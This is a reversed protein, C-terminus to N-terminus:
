ADLVKRVKKALESPGFPKSIFNIGSRLVGQDVIANETYGSMFLVKIGPIKESVVSALESGSMHPMVVDTLLLDFSHNNNALLELAEKGNGASLVEYGFQDLTNELLKRVVEEDEVVLVREKGEHKVNEKPTPRAGDEEMDTRPLYIKFTTGKEKESYVRIIGRNQKVIGYVTALGLGTGKEIGKTTFFPEFINDVIEKSIGEGTDSISFLVYEGPSENFKQDLMEESIYINSTEFSIIGGGPMADKANVVLNVVVQEVQNIDARINGLEHDRQFKLQIDEGIVRTLMRQMNDLVDNLNLISVSIMQKRSFALLQKTLSAAREATETIDALHRLLTVDEKCYLGALEASGLIATLLNNFDHAVGGALRGVAEMKQSHFVREELRKRESIDRITGQIIIDEEHAIVSISAEVEFDQGDKNRAVFEYQTSPTDGYDYIKERGRILDHSIPSVLTMFDFDPNLIESSDYGFM